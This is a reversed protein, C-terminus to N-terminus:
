FIIVKNLQVNENEKEKDLDIMFNWKNSMEGKMNMIKVHSLLKEKANFLTIKNSYDNVLIKIECFIL